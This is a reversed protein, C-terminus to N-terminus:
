REPPIVLKMGGQLPRGGRLLENNAVYIIRWLNSKNYYKLAISELTEGEKVIHYTITPETQAALRQLREPSTRLMADSTESAPMADAVRLTSELESAQNASSQRTDSLSLPKEAGQGKALVLELQTQKARASDEARQRAAKQALLETNLQGLAAVAQESQLTLTQVQQELHSNEQRVLTIERRLRNNEQEMAQAEMRSQNLSDEAKGLQARLEAFRGDSEAVSGTLNALQGREAQLRAYNARLAGLEKTTERLRAALESQDSDQSRGSELANRLAAREKNALVLEQQLIKKEIRLDSNEAALQPNTTAISEQRGFHVFGCGTVSLLTLLCCLFSLVPLLRM